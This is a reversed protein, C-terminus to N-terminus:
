SLVGEKGALIYIKELEGTGLKIIEKEALRQWWYCSHKYLELKSEAEILRKTLYELTKDKM